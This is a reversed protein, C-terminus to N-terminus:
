LVDLQLHLALVVQPLATFQTFSPYRIDSEIGIWLRGFAEVLYLTEVCMRTSQIKQVTTGLRELQVVHM